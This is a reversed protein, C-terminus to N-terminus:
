VRESLLASRYDIEKRERDPLQFAAQSNLLTSSKEISSLGADGFIM